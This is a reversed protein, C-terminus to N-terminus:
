IKITKLNLFGFILNFILFIFLFGLIKLIIKFDFFCSKKLKTNENEELKNSDLLITVENKNYLIKNTSIEELESDKLQVNSSVIETNLNVEASPETNKSIDQQVIEDINLSTETINSKFFNRITNLDAMLNNQSSLIRNLEIVESLKDMNVFCDAEILGNVLDTNIFILEDKSKGSNIFHYLNKVNYIIQQYQNLNPTFIEPKLINWILKLNFGIGTLNKKMLSLINLNETFDFKNNEILYELIQKNVYINEHESILELKRFESMLKILFNRFEEVNKEHISKDDVQSILIKSQFEKGNIENIYNPGLIEYIDGIIKICNSSMKKIQSDNIILDDIMSSNFFNKPFKESNIEFSLLYEINSRYIKSPAEDKKENSPIMLNFQIAQNPSYGIFKQVLKKFLQLGTLNKLSQKKININEFLFTIVEINLAENINQDNIQESLIQFFDLADTEAFNKINNRIKDQFSLNYNRFAPFKLSEYKAVNKFYAEIKKKDSDKRFSETKEILKQRDDLPYIYELKKLLTETLQHQQHTM